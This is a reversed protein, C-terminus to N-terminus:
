NLGLRGRWLGVDAPLQIGTIEVLAANALDRLRRDQSQSIQELLTPISRPSALARLAAVAQYSMGLEGRRFVQCVADSWRDRALRQESIERLSRAVEGRDGQYLAQRAAEGRAQEWLQSREHLRRWLEPKSRIRLGSLAELALHAASSRLRDGGEVAALLVPLSDEDRARGLATLAAAACAASGNEALLRVVQLAHSDIWAPHEQWYRGLRVILSQDLEASNGLLRALLLGQERCPNQEVALLAAEAAAPNTALIAVRLDICRAPDKALLGALLGKFRQGVGDASCQAGQAWAFCLDVETLSAVPELCRLAALSEEPSPAPVLRSRLFALLPERGIAMLAQCLAQKAPDDLSRAAQNGLNPTQGVILVDFLQPLAGSGWGAVLRVGAAQETPTGFLVEGLVKLRAETWSFQGETQGVVQARRGGGELAPAAGTAAFAAPTLLLVLLPLAAFM